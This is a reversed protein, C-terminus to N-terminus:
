RKERETQTHTHTKRETASMFGSRIIDFGWLLFTLVFRSIRMESNNHVMEAKMRPVFSNELLTLLLLLLLLLLWLM